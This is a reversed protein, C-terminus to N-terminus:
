RGGAAWAPPGNRKPGRGKAKGSGGGKGAKVKGNGNGNGGAGQGQGGGDGNGAVGPGQGGGNGNGGAGQGQGGANGNGNAGPGQGGANGNGNAGQGRGGGDGGKTKGGGQDDGVDADAGENEREAGGAAPEDSNEDSADRGRGDGNAPLAALVTGYRAAVEAAGLVSAPSPASFASRVEVTQNAANLVRVGGANRVVVEGVEGEASLLLTVTNVEGEPAARGAVRTGRIGITAVPTRVAMAEPGTEAIEGSVFSFVGQVVTFVSAGAGAGPDFIFADLVMRAEPGLAFTSDDIFVIGIVADVGTEVTDGLVVPVGERLTVRTGAASFALAEGVVTEVVGIPQSERSEAAAAGAWGAAGVVIVALCLARRVSERAVLRAPGFGGQM